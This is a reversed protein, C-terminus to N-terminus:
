RSETPARDSEIPRTARRTSSSHNAHRAQAHADDEAAAGPLVLHREGGRRRHDGRELLPTVGDDRDADSAVPAPDDAAIGQPRERGLRADRERRVVGVPGHLLSERVAGFGDLAGGNLAECAGLGGATEWGLEALSEVHDHDHQMTRVALVARDLAKELEGVNRVDARANKGGGDPHVLDRHLSHELSVAQGDDLVDHDGSVLPAGRGIADRRTYGLGDAKGAEDLGRVQARADPDALHALRSRQGGRYIESSTVIALDEDLAGHPPTLDFHAHEAVVLRDSRERALDTVVGVPVVIRGLVQLALRSDRHRRGHRGLGSPPDALQRDGGEARDVTRAHRADVKKELAIAHQDVLDVRDGAEGRRAAVRLHPRGGPEAVGRQDVAQDLEGDLTMVVLPSGPRGRPQRTSEGFTSRRLSQPGPAPPNVGRVDLAPPEAYASRRSVGTSTTMAPPPVPPWVLGPRATAARRRSRELVHAQIPEREPM